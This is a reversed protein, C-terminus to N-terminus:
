QQRRALVHLLPWWQVHDLVMQRVLPSTTLMHRTYHHWDDESATSPHQRTTFLGAELTDALMEAITELRAKQKGRLRYGDAGGYLYERLEPYDLLHSYVQRLDSMIARLESTAVLANSTRTQQALAKTQEAVYRLQWAAFGASAAAVILAVITLTTQM